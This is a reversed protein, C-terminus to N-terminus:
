RGASIMRSNAINFLEYHLNGETGLGCKVNWDVYMSVVYPHPNMYRRVGTNFAVAVARVKYIQVHRPLKEEGFSQGDVNIPQFKSHHGLSGAVSTKWCSPVRGYQAVITQHNRSLCKGNLRNPHPLHFLSWWAARVGGKNGTGRAIQLVSPTFFIWVLGRDSWAWRHQQM